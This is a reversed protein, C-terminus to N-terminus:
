IKISKAIEIFRANDGDEGEITEIFRDYENRAVEGEKSRIVDFCCDYLM